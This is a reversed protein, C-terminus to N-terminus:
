KLSCENTPIRKYLIFETVDNKPHWKVFDHSLMQVVNM